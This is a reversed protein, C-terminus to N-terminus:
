IETTKIKTQCNGAREICKQRVITCILCVMLILFVLYQYIGMLIRHTASVPRLCTSASVVAGRNAADGMQLYIGTCRPNPPKFFLQLSSDSEERVITDARM